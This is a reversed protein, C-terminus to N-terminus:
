RAEGALLSSLVCPQREVLICQEAMAGENVPRAENMSEIM